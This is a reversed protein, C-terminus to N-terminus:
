SNRTYNSETEKTEVSWYRQLFFKGFMNKMLPKTSSQIVKLVRGRFLQKSVDLLDFDAFLCKKSPRKLWGGRFKIWKDETEKATGGKMKMRCWVTLFPESEEIKLGESNLLKARMRIWANNSNRYSQNQKKQIRCNRFFLM